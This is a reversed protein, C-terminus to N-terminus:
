WGGRVTRLAEEGPRESGAVPQVKKKKEGKKGISLILNVTGGLGGPGRPPLLLTSTEASDWIVAEEAPGAGHPTSSSPEGWSQEVGSPADSLPSAPPSIARGEPLRPESRETPELLSCPTFEVPSHISELRPQACPACQALPALCFLSHPPLAAPALCTRLVTKGKGQRFGLSDWLYRCM